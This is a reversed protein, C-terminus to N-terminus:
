LRFINKSSYVVVKLMRTVRTVSSTVSGLTCTARTIPLTRWKVAIIGRHTFNPTPASNLVSEKYFTTNQTTAGHLIKATRTYMRVKKRLLLMNQILIRAESITATKAPWNMNNTTSIVEIFLPHFDLLFRHESLHCRSDQSVNINTKM